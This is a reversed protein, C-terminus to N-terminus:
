RVIQPLVFGCVACVGNQMIKLGMSCKFVACVENQIIELGMSCKTSDMKYVHKMKLDM